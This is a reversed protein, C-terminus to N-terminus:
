PSAPPRRPSLTLVSAGAQRVAADSFPLPHYEGAAWMPIFDKYHRHFPLGSQGTTHIAQSRDFDAVDLIQRYSAVVVQRFTAVSFGGNNVTYADGGTPPSGANFILGLPPVRGIPHEFRMVHLKGWVWADRDAGLREKLTDFAEALARAVVADRGEAGWWPSAPDGLLRLLTLTWADSRGMYRKFLDPGLVPEFVLRPLTVRFAQYVAAPGSDPSLVGDWRRLEALMWGAPDESVKVPALAAVLARGPLSALDMQIGRIDSANLKSRATLLTEIRRARFGPDWDASLFHPYGPPAIRNNATVIFGRAPNYSSPLAEFPIEGTWEYEGTWGPVPLTGDGKARVPVRGPMQYGINGRRDAYVFNQSPVTWARLADRFEQWNKARNLRAVSSLIMSRDLATWRLALFSPLGEVASNLLPGHRTIRVTMMVPEPRGKVGIRERVLTAQEWADRYLYRDPDTPHFREIYLDQVDPGANTVGWAIEENHGIIVGPTGPFTVGAVSLGPSRLHMEYWIGPIAAELHPDNALIPGGTVSRSGAVVWNNSGIGARPPAHDLARLVGAAAFAGYDARPVIVPHAAPYDPMLARVGEEGFRALLHARLIESEWNGSLVWAMLKAYTLVDLATWTEPSFRLLAFEIPLRRRHDALFANVGETYAEAAAKAEADQFPWEAEAARRLGLTRVFRDTELTVEGFIESLRGSAARRNLEMQWLRDQAHVFGQAFFLDHESRAQIHPVGWPDRIVEVPELLGAAELTGQELPFARRILYVGLGGAAVAALLLLSLLLLLLRRM